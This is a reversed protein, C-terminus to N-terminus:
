GDSGVQYCGTHLLMHSRAEDMAALRTVDPTYFLMHSRADDMAALRTVDRSLSLSLSVSLAGSM